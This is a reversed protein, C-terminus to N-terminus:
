LMCGLSLFMAATIKLCSLVVSDGLLKKGVDLSESTPRFSDRTNCNFFEEPSSLFWSVWPHSEAFVSSAERRNLTRHSLTSM